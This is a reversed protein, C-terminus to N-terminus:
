LGEPPLASPSPLEWNKVGLSEELDEHSTQCITGGTQRHNQCLNLFLARAPGDLHDFPEDLLWLSQPAFLLAALAGQRQQGASLTSIPQDQFTSLHCQDIVEEAPVSSRLLQQKSLLQQKLTLHSRQGNQHGVYTLPGQQQISGYDPTLLGAMLKLLTSKGVGNKGRLSIWDGQHITLHINQLFFTHDRLFYVNQLSM